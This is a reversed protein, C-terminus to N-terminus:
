NLRRFFRFSEDIISAKIAKTRKRILLVVAVAGIAVSVWIIVLLIQEPATPPTTAVGASENVVITYRSFMDLTFNVTKDDGVSVNVYLPEGNHLLDVTTAGEVLEELYLETGASVNLFLVDLIVDGKKSAKTDEKLVIVNWGGTAKKPKIMVKAKTGTTNAWVVVGSENFYNNAGILPRDSTVQITVYDIITINGDSVGVRVTYTDPRTFKFETVNNGKQIVDWKGDNDFDWMFILDSLSKNFSWWEIEFKLPKDIDTCREHKQPNVIAFTPAYEKGIYVTPEPYVFKRVKVDDVAGTATSGLRYGFGVLDKPSPDNWVLTYKVTSNWIEAYFTNGFRKFSVNYWENVNPTFPTYNAQTHSASFISLNGGYGYVALYVDSAYKLALEQLFSTDLHKIRAEISVNNYNLWRWTFATDEAGTKAYIKNGDESQVTYGAGAIIYPPSADDGLSYDEFDDYWIFVQEPPYGRFTGNVPMKTLGFARVSGDYGAYSLYYYNGFKMIAGRLVHSSDWTDGHELIPNGDYQYFHKFDNTYAIGLRWGTKGSASATYLIYFTDGYRFVSPDASRDYGADWRGAVGTGAGLVPNGEYKTFPADPANSFAIGVREYGGSVDEGMYFMVYPAPIGFKEYDPVYIVFPETVRNADWEGSAGKTLVKIPTSYTGNIVASKVVYIDSPQGTPPSEYYIYWYDGFKVICPAGADSIAFNTDVTWNVLDDSYALRVTPTAGNRDEFIAWYKGTDPDYVINEVLINTGYTLVPSEANKWRGLPPISPLPPNPNGYYMWITVNGNAPIYPVKVWVFLHTNNWGEIWYPISGNIEHYPDTVNDRTFFRIDGFDSRAIHLNTYPIELKIQYDRLETGSNEHITIPLKFVAEEASAIPITAILVLLLLALRM